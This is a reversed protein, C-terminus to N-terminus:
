ATRVASDTRTGNDSVKGKQQQPDAYQKTSELLGSELNFVHLVVTGPRYGCGRRKCKVELHTSDLLRGHMTGACRLEDM